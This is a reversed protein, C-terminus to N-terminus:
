KTRASGGSDSKTRAADPDFRWVGGRSVLPIPFPWNEAGIYLATVGGPEQVLRHMEQYKQVFRERELTDQLKDGSTVLDAGAGLIETVAREDHKQVAALLARSADEPSAFTTQSLPRALCLTVPGALLLAFTALAVRATLGRLPSGELENNMEYMMENEKPRSPLMVQRTNMQARRWRPRRRRRPLRRRRPVRRRCECKRPGFICTHRGWSQLRQVRKLSYRVARRRFVRHFRWTSFGGPYPSCRDTRSRRRTGHGFDNHHIFTPSHSVYRDHDHMVDHQHWDTGWHHWGWGFGGFVGIGIGLGFAIGPGDIYLGPVGYGGAYYPLPPGYVGWPDYEPVYVVQPDTPEIAITQGDTTVTEQQTSQLNGAQQARQRMVQVADLVTQQGNVYADGLSSTWSLNKDMMELVSPFQTLAKVSPDWSQPDVAQALADGKLGTHQQMWRDAEVVETPYSAAALVQAVLADPYLAIPAVLQDLENASAPAIPTENELPPAAQVLSQADPQASM